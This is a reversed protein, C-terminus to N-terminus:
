AVIPEQDLRAEIGHRDHLQAVLEELSGGELRVLFGVRGTWRGEGKEQLLINPSGLRPTQWTRPRRQSDPHLTVLAHVDTSGTARPAPM